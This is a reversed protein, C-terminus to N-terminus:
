CEVVICTIDDVKSEIPLGGLWKRKATAALTDAAHQLTADPEHLAEDVTEKVADNSMVDFVGDTAVVIRNDGGKLELTNIIPTPIVGARLMVADGLARTMAIGVPGYFVNGAGDVRGECQRIRAVEMPAATTTEQAIVKIEQVDDKVNWLIARSDGVTAVHLKRMTTDLLCVICTTGSRGAPVNPDSMMNVHTQHFTQTLLREIPTSANNTMPEAKALTVLKDEFDQLAASEDTSVHSNENMLALKEQLIRPMEEKLFSTVVHGKTGHGDMVGWCSYEDCDFSFSADQYQKQPREPDSGPIAGIGISCTNLFVSSSFPRSTSDVVFAETSAPLLLKIAGIWLFVRQLIKYCNM